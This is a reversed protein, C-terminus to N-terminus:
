TGTLGWAAAYRHENYSTGRNDLVQVTYHSEETCIANLHLGWHYPLM